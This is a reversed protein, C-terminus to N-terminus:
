ISQQDDTSITEGRSRHVLGAIRDRFSFLGVAIGILLTISLLIIFPWNVNRDGKDEKELVNLWLSREFENSLADRLVVTVHYSGPSGVTFEINELNRYTRIDGEPGSVTWEIFIIESSDNVDAISLNVMDGEFISGPVRVQFYPPTHDYVTFNRQFYTVLGNLDEVLIQVRWPGIEQPYFSFAVIDQTINYDTIEFGSRAKVVSISSLNWGSNDFINAIIMVPADDPWESGEELNTIVVPPLNDYTRILIPRIAELYGDSVIIQLRLGSLTNIRHKFELAHDGTPSPEVEVSTDNHPFHVRVEQLRINDSASFNLRFSGALPIPDDYSINWILPPDDDHVMVFGGASVLGSGGSDAATIEYRLEGTLNSPVVFRIFYTRLEGFKLGRNMRGSVDLSGGPDWYRHDVWSAELNDKVHVEMIYTDGTTLGDVIESTRNDVFRVDVIEPLITDLIPRDFLESEFRNMRGDSVTFNYYLFGVSDEPILM